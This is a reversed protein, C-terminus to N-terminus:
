AKSKVCKVKVVRQAVETSMLNIVNKGMKKEWLVPNSM